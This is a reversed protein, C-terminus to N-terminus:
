PVPPKALANLDTITAPTEQATEVMNLKATVLKAVGEPTVGLAKIADPVSAIVWNMAQDIVANKTTMTLHTVTGGVKALAANIGTLAASHLAERHRAEIEVGFKLRVMNALWGIAGTVVVALTNSIIPQISDWIGGVAIGTPATQALAETIFM